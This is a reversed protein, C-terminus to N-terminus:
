ALVTYRANYDELFNFRQTLAKIWATYKPIGRM